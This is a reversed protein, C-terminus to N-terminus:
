KVNIVLDLLDFIRMVKLLFVKKARDCAKESKHKQMKVSPMAEQMITIGDGIYKNSLFELLVEIIIRGLTSRVSSSIVKIVASACLYPYSGREFSIKM